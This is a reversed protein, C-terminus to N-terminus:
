SSAQSGTRDTVPVVFHTVRDGQIRVRPDGLAIDLSMEGFYPRGKGMLVALEGRM